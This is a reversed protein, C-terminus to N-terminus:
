EEGRSRFPNSPTPPYFQTLQSLAGPYKNGLLRMIMDRIADGEAADNIPIVTRAIKDDDADVARMM